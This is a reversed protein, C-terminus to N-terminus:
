EGNAGTMSVDLGCLEVREKKTKYCVDIKNSLARFVIPLGRAEEEDFGKRVKRKQFAEFIVKCLSCKESSKQIGFIDNHHKFIPSDSPQLSPDRRERNAKQRDQCQELCTDLLAAFDVSNCTACLTKASLQYRSNIRFCNLLKALLHVLGPFLDTM